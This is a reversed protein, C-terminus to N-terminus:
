AHLRRVVADLRCVPACRFRNCRTDWAIKQLDVSEHVPTARCLTRLIDVRDDKSPLPVYLPKDLRGPRVMAPDIIDTTVTVLVRWGFDACSCGAAEHHMV